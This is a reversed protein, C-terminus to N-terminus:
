CCSIYTYRESNDNADIYKQERINLKNYKSINKKCRYCISSNKMKNEDLSLSNNKIIIQSGKENLFYIRRRKTIRKNNFINNVIYEITTSDFNYPFDIYSIKSDMIQLDQLNFNKSLDLYNVSSFNSDHKQQIFYTNNYIYLENLKNFKSFDIKNKLPFATIISEINKHDYLNILDLKQNNQLVEDINYRDNKLYLYKLKSEFLGEKELSFPGKKILPGEKELSFPGENPIGLSPLIINKFSGGHINIYELNYCNELNINNMNGEFDSYYLKKCNSLDISNISNNNIFIKELNILNNFPIILDIYEIKLNRINEYNDQIEIKKYNEIINEENGKIILTELSKSFPLIIKCNINSYLNLYKLKTLKSLDIIGNSYNKITLKELNKYQSFDYGDIFLDKEDIILSAMYEYPIYDQDEDSFLTGKM